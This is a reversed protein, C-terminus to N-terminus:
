ESKCELTIEVNPMEDFFQIVLPECSSAEIRIQASGTQYPGSEEARTDGIGYAAFVGTLFVFRGTEPDYKSPVAGKQIADAIADVEPDTLAPKSM